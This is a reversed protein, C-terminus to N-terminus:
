RISRWFVASTTGRRTKRDANAANVTCAGRLPSSDLVNAIQQALRSFKERGTYGNEDGIKAWTNGDPNGKLRTFSGRGLLMDGLANLVMELADGEAKGQTGITESKKLGSGLTLIGNMGSVTVNPDLKGFLEQVRLSDAILVLSHADAFDNQTYGGVLLKPDKYAWSQALSDLIVSGRYFAQDEIFVKVDSGHHWQSNAVASWPPSTTETGVVDYQNEFMPDAYSKKTVANWAGLPTSMAETREKVTLVAMQYDLNMQEIQSAPIRAPNGDVSDSIGILRAIEANIKDIRGMATRIRAKDDALRSKQAEDDTTGVVVADLLAYDAQTPTKGDKIHDRLTAYVINLAASQFRIKNGGDNKRLDDFASIIATLNDSAKNRLLGTGAGNFTVVQDIFAEGNHMMNFATALHGGLSYGTVSFHQNAPLKGSTKLNQYWAEMDAIQGFAFGFEKIEMVNTAQNDRAADDIFETSRISMVLEKTHNNQFLTGSFGTKTNSIHDVVTWEKVFAEADTQTFKSAHLNGTTLVASNITGNYHGIDSLPDGPKLTAADEKANFDYLAEAAMQLDAYKMYDAITPDAM